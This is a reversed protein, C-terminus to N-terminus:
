DDPFGEKILEEIDIEKKTSPTSISSMAQTLFSSLIDRIFPPMFFYVVGGFVAVLFIAAFLNTTDGSVMFAYLLRILTWLVATETIAFVTLDSLSVTKTMWCAFLAFVAVIYATYISNFETM